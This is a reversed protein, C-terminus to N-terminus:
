GKNINNESKPTSPQKSEIGHTKIKTTPNSEANNESTKSDKLM